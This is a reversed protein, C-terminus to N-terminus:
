RGYSTRAQRRAIKSGRGQLQRRAVAQRAALRRRRRRVVMLPVLVVLIAVGVTAVLWILSETAPWSTAVLSFGPVKERLIRYESQALSTVDSETQSLTVSENAFGVVVANDYREVYVALPENGKTTSLYAAGQAGPVGAPTFTSHYRYSLSTYSGSALSAKVTQQLVESAQSVSPLVSVQLSAGFQTKKGDWAISYVGTRDPSKKAAAKVGAYPSDAPNESSATAPPNKYGDPASSPVLASLRKTDLKHQPLVQWAVIASVAVLVGAVILPLYRRSPM